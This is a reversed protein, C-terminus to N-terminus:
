NTNSPRYSSMSAFMKCQIMRMAEYVILNDNFIVATIVSVCFMSFLVTMTKKRGYKDSCFGAPLPAITNTIALLSTLLSNIDSKECVLGYKTSITEKMISTDFTYSECSHNQYKENLVCNHQSPNNEDKPLMLESQMSTFNSETGNLIGNCYSEPIYQGFVPFCSSAGGSIAIYSVLLLIVLTYTPM